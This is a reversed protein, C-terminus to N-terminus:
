VSVRLSTCICWHVNACLEIKKLILVCTSMTGVSSECAHPCVALRASCYFVARVAGSCVCDQRRVTHNHWCSGKFKDTPRQNQSPHVDKVSLM